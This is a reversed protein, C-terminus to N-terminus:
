VLLNQQIWVAVGDRGVPPCIDDAVAKVHEEANGVAVFRGVATALPLDNGGDGFAVTDQPNFGLIKMLARAGTGKTVGQATIEIETSSMRIVEFHGDQALLALGCVCDQESPFVCGMKEVGDRTRILHPRISVVQRQGGNSVMRWAYRVGRRVFTLSRRFVSRGKGAYRRTRALAGTRGALMYSLGKWEFYARGGFFANWSPKLPALLDMCRLSDERSMTKQRVDVGDALRTVVSGNACVAYDMIGTELLKKNVICLPRGSAICLVYGAKKALRLTQLVCDSIYTGSQVITDDLDFFLLGVGRPHWAEQESLEGQRQSTKSALAATWSLSWHTLLPRSM